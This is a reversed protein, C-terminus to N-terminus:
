LQAYRHIRIDVIPPSVRARGVSYKAMVGANGGVVAPDNHRFMEIEIFPLSERLTKVLGAPFESSDVDIRRVAPSRGGQIYMRPSCVDDQLAVM